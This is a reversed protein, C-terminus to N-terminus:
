GIVITARYVCGLFCRLSELREKRAEARPPRKKMARM